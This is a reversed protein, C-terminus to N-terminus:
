GGAEEIAALMEDKSMSTTIGEYGRSESYEQLEAKTMEDLTKEEETASTGDGDVYQEPAAKISEPATSEGPIHAGEPNATVGLPSAYDVNGLRVQDAPDLFEVNDGARQNEPITLGNKEMEEEDPLQEDTFQQPMERANPPPTNEQQATWGKLSDAEDAPVTEGLLRDDQTKTDAM